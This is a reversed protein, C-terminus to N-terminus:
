FSITVGTSDTLLREIAAMSPSISFDRGRRAARKRYLGASRPNTIIKRVATLLAEDNNDVVVGWEGRPGLLERTGSCEVAVVPTGVILAEAVVLGYGEVRSSLVFWDAAAVLPLPNPRYGWLKVSKHLNHKAILKELKAREPGEGVIWLRPNHGEATLHAVIAILRDFGKQWVLRGVSVLLPIGAERGPTFEAAAHRITESDIPNYITRAPVGFLREFARCASDSVCVVDDFLRYCEKQERASRFAVGTWPNLDMDTHVWAIRRPSRGGAVIRTAYGEIFAVEVDFKERLWIWRFVRPSLHNYIWLNIKNHIRGSLREHPRLISRYAIDPPYREDPVEHRHNVLTIDFQSRDLHGLVLQMVREAGGGYLSNVVFAVRTKM